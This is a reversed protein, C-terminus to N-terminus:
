ANSQAPRLLPPLLLAMSLCVFAEGLVQSLTGGEGDGTRNDSPSLALSHSSRSVHAGLKSPHWSPPAVGLPGQLKQSTLPLKALGTQRGTPGSVAQDKGVDPKAKHPLPCFTNEIKEERDLGKLRQTLPQRQGETAGM